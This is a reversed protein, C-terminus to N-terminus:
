KFGTLKTKSRLAWVEVQIDGTSVSRFWEKWNVYQCQVSIQM